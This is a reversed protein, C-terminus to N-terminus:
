GITKKIASNECAFLKTNGTKVGKGAILPTLEMEVGPEYNTFNETSILIDSLTAGPMIASQNFNKTIATGKNVVKINVQSIPVNGRNNISLEGGLADTQKFSWDFNIASCQAEIPGNFKSIQETIFGAQWMYVVIAISIVIGILLVTAIIPSIARKKNM